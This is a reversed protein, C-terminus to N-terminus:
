AGFKTKRTHTEYYRTYMMACCIGVIFSVVFGFINEITPVQVSKTFYMSLLLTEVFGVSLVVIGPYLFQMVPNKKIFPMIFDHLTLAVVILAPLLGIPGIILSGMFGGIIFPIEYRTKSASYVYAALLVFFLDIYPFFHRTVIALVVLLSFLIYKM